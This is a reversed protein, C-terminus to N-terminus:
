GPSSHKNKRTINTAHGLELTSLLIYIHVWEYHEENDWHFFGFNQYPTWLNHPIAFLVPNCKTKIRLVVPNFKDCHELSSLWVETDTLIYTHLLYFLSSHSPKLQNSHRQLNSTLCHTILLSAFFERLYKNNNDRGWGTNKNFDRPTTMNKSIHLNKHLIHCFTNAHNRYDYTYIETFTM